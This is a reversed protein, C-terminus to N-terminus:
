LFTTLSVKSSFRANQEINVKKGCHALMLKGCFRRLVTQGLKLGSYSPPMHQALTYYVLAGIKRKIGM